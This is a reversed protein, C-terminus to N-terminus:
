YSFQGLLLMALAAAAVTVLRVVLEYRRWGLSWFTYWEHEASAAM